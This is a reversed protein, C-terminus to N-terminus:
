ILLLQGGLHGYYLKEHISAHFHCTPNVFYSFLLSLHLFFSFHLKSDCSRCFSLFLLLPLELSLALPRSVESWQFHLETLTSSVLMYCLLTPPLWSHPPTSAPATSFSQSSHECDNREGSCQLFESPGARHSSSVTDLESSWQPVRARWDFM